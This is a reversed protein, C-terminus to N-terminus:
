HCIGAGAVFTDRKHEEFSDSKSWVSAIGGQAYRTSGELPVDKCVLTVDAHSALKLAASLGSIGTGLILIKASEKPSGQLNTETNM